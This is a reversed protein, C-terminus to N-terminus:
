QASVALQQILRSHETVTVNGKKRMVSIDSWEWPFGIAGVHGTPVKILQEYTSVVRTRNMPTTAM